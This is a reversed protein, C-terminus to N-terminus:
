DGGKLAQQRICENRCRDVLAVFGCRKCIHRKCFCMKQLAEDKAKLQEAQSDIIDHAEKKATYYGAQYIDFAWVGRLEQWRDVGCDKYKIDCQRKYAAWSTECAKLTLPQTKLGKTMETDPSKCQTNGFKYGNDTIDTEPAIRKKKVSKQFKSKM